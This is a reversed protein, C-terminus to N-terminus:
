DSVRLGLVSHPFCITPLIYFEIKGITLSSSVVGALKQLDESCIDRSTGSTGTDLLVM